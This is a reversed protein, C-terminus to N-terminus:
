RERLASYHLIHGIEDQTNNRDIEIKFTLKNQFFELWDPLIWTHAIPFVM